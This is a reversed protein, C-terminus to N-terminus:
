NFGGGRLLGVLVPHSHLFKFQVLLTLVSTDTRDVWIVTVPNSDKLRCGLFTVPTLDLCLIRIRSATMGGVSSLDGRVQAPYTERLIWNCM